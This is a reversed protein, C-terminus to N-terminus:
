HSPRISPLYGMSISAKDAARRLQPLLEDIMREHSWQASEVSVAIAGAAGDLNMVPLSISRLGFAVEEDQSGWGRERITALEARLEDMTQVANPGMRYSALDVGALTADLEPDELCSLLVKGMATCAAPLLSGAVVNGVVYGASKYRLLYVIDAGSLVALSCTERTHRQLERLPLRTAEVVENGQLAAFGLTLVAASPTFTGDDLQEVYGSDELTRLIRFCTSVPIKTTRAVESVGLARENPTFCALVRLGKELAAIRYHDTM